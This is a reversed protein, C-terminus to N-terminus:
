SVVSRLGPLTVLGFVTSLEAASYGLDSLHASVLDRLSSATEKAPIEIPEKERWGRKSMQVFYYKRGRDSIAGLEWARYVLAQM